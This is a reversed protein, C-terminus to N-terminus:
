KKPRSSWHIHVIRWGQPTNGLVMTETGLLVLPKGDKHTRVESESGVWATSGDVRARRRLLTTQASALFRADSHAHHGLYEARDREAGGSELILVNEDLLAEVTAFDAKALAEGFRRVVEVPAEAQSPVDVIAQGAAQAHLPPAAVTMAVLAMLHLLKM